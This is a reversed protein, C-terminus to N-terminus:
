DKICRVSYGAEKYGSNFGLSNSNTEIDRIFANITIHSDTTTSWWYGHGGIDNFNGLRYGGPLATFGSSNSAFDGSLWHITGVERMKGGAVAEGGLYNQLTGWEAASPVHWGVPALGRPDNVAYWNYM